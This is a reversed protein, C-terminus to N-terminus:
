QLTSSKMLLFILYEIPQKKIKKNTTNTKYFTHHISSICELEIEKHFLIIQQHVKFVIKPMIVINEVCMVILIEKVMEIMKQKVKQTSFFEKLQM